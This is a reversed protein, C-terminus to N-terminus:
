MAYLVQIRALKKIQMASALCFLIPNLMQYMHFLFISKDCWHLRRPQPIEEDENENENKDKDKDEKDENDGDKEGDV